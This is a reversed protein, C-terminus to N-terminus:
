PGSRGAAVAALVQDAVEATPRRGDLVVAGAARMQAEFVPRGRVVQERAAADRNGSAALRALQTPEDISLLFVTDFLDLLERQNMAIGCLVVTADSPHRLYQELRSRPWVWRHRALWEAGPDPPAAVLEGAPSEWGALEDADLAPVGRRVLEAVLATKGAGPNGTVLHATM